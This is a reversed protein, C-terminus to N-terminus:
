SEPHSPGAQHRGGEPRNPFRILNRLAQSTKEEEPKPPTPMACTDSIWLLLLNNFISPMRPPWVRLWVRLDYTFKENRKPIFMGYASDYASDYASFWVRTGYAPTMRLATKWHCNAIRLFAMRLPWVHLGHTVFCYNKKTVDMRPPWVSIWVRLDYAFSNKLPLQSYAPFGYASTM